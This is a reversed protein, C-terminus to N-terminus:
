AVMRYEMFRVKEGFRNVHDVMEHSFKYVAKELDSIRAALRMIGLESLAAIPNIAEYVAFWRLIRQCQTSLNEFPVKM